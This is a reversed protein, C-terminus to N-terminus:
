RKITKKGNIIVVGVYDDGVKQGALNYISEQKNNRTVQREDIGTTGNIQYVEFGNEKFTGSLYYTDFNFTRATPDYYSVKATSKISKYDQVTTEKSKYVFATTQKDFDIQNTTSDLTFYFETGGYMPALKWFKLDKEDQYAIVNQQTVKEWVKYTYTGTYREVWKPERTFKFAKFAYNVITGSPTTSMVILTYNGTETLTETIVNSTTEQPVIEENRIQEILREVDTKLTISGSEILYYVKSYGDGKNLTSTMVGNESVDIDNIDITYNPYGDIYVHEKGSTLSQNDKTYYTMYLTFEGTEPNFTCPYNKYSYAANRNPYDSALIDYKDAVYGSSVPKVQCEYTRLDVDIILASGCAFNELLYQCQTEDNKKNRVFISHKTPYAAIYDYVYDYTCTGDKAEVWETWEQSTTADKIIHFARWPNATMYTSVNGEDITLTAQSYIDNNFINLSGNLPTNGHVTVETLSTCGTFANASIYEITSPIDISTISMGSFAAPGIRVVDYTGGSIQVTKPIVIDGTYKTTGDPCAVEVACDNLLNYCLGDVISQSRSPKINYTIFQGEAFDQEKITSLYYGNGHGSWGFNFHFYGADDYGDCVFAHGYQGRGTYCIPREANLEQKLIKEWNTASYSSRYAQSATNYSFYTKLVSAIDESYAGSGGASGLNYDMEIAIGVDSSLKAYEEGQEDTCNGYNPRILEWNYESNALNVSLTKKGTKWYYSKSGKGKLPWAWYALVQSLSTAVCGVVCKEAVNSSNTLTPCNDNFPSTQTWNNEGLLPPVVPHTATTKQLRARKLASHKISLTSPEGEKRLENIQRQYESLWWKLNEPADDYDFYGADTYGLVIEEGLVDKPAVITFGGNSVNNYIEFDVKEATHATYVLRRQAYAGTSLTCLVLCFLLLNRKM